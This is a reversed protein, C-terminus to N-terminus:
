GVVQQWDVRRCMRIASCVIMETRKEVEGTMREFDVM